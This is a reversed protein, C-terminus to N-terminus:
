RYEHTPRSSVPVRSYSSLWVWSATPQATPREEGGSGEPTDGEDLGAGGALFAPQHHSKSRRKRRSDVEAAAVLEDRAVEHTRLRGMSGDVGDSAFGESRTPLGSARSAPGPAPAPPEDPSLREALRRTEMFCVVIAATAALALLLNLFYLIKVHTFLRGDSVDTTASTHKAM